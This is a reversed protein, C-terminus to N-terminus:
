VSIIKSKLVIVTGIQDTKRINNVTTYMVNVNKDSKYKSYKKCILAGQKVILREDKNNLKLDNIIGIVHCSTYDDLHFWLDNENAIDIIDFNDQANKGIYFTINIKLKQIYINETIM